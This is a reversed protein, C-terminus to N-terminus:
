CNFYKGLNKGTQVPALFEHTFYNHTGDMSKYDIRKKILEMPHNDCFRFDQSENEKALQQKGLRELFERRVFSQKARRKIKEDTLIQNEKLPTPFKPVWILKNGQSGCWKICCKKHPRKLQQELKVKENANADITTSTRLLVFNNNNNNNKKKSFVLHCSRNSTSQVM